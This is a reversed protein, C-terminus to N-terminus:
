SMREGRCELALIGPLSSDVLSHVEVTFERLRLRASTLAIQRPLDAERVLLTVRLLPADAVPQKREESSGELVLVPLETAFESEELQGTEPDYYRSVEVLMAPESWDAFMQQTSALAMQQIASM